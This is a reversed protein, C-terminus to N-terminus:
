HDLRLGSDWLPYWLRDALASVEAAPLARGDHLLVLDLDSAPGADGRAVGGVAALAIGDLSHGDEVLPEVARQWILALADEVMTTLARRRDPGSAGSRVALTLRERRLDRGAYPASQAGTEAM